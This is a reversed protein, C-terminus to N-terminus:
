DTASLRARLLRTNRISWYREDSLRRLTFRIDTVLPPPGLWVRNADSALQQDAQRLQATSFRM